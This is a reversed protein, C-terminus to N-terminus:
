AIAKATELRALVEELQLVKESVVGAELGICRYDNVTLMEEEAHPLQAVFQKAQALEEPTVDSLNVRMTEKIDVLNMPILEKLIVRGSISTTLVCIIQEYTDNFNLLIVVNLMKTAVLLKKVNLASTSDNCIVGYEASTADVYKSFEVLDMVYAMAVVDQGKELFRKKTIAEGTAKLIRKLRSWHNFAKGCECKYGGTWAPKEGCEPCVLSTDAKRMDAFKSIKLEGIPMTFGSLQISVKIKRPRM